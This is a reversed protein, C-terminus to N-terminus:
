QKIMAQPLPNEKDEDQWFLNAIWWRGDSKVLTFYNIGRHEVKGGASLRFQYVSQVQAINGFQSSTRGLEEEYFASKMFYPADAKQYDQPTFSRFVTQGSRNKVPAGMKAGALFLSHFRDWNRPGAEGSIVNYTAKILADITKVDASDVNYSPTTDPLLQRNSIIKFHGTQAVPKKASATGNFLLLSFSLTKFVCKM